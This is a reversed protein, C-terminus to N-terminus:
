TVSIGLGAEAFLSNCKSPEITSFEKSVGENNKVNIDVGNHNLLVLIAESANNAQQVPRCDRCM